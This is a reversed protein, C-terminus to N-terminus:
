LMWSVCASCMACQETRARAGEKVEPWHLPCIPCCMSHGCPSLRCYTPRRPVPVCACPRLRCRHLTLAVIAAIFIPSLRGGVKVCCLCLAPQEDWTRWWLWGLAMTAMGGRPPSLAAVTVQGPAVANIAVRLAEAVQKKRTQQLTNCHYWSLM